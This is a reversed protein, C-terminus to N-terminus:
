KAGKPRVLSVHVWHTYSREKTNQVNYGVHLGLDWNTGIFIGRDWGGSPDDSFWGITFLPRPPITDTMDIVNLEPKKKGKFLKFM